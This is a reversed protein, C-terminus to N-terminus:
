KTTATTSANFLIYKGHLSPRNCIYRAGGPLPPLPPTSRLRPLLYIFINVILYIYSIRILFHTILNCITM